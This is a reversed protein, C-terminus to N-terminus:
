VASLIRFDLMRCYQKREAYVEPKDIENDWLLVDVETSGLFAGTFGDLATRLAKALAEVDKARMAWVDFQIRPRYLGDSVGDLIHDTGNDVVMLTLAGSGEPIVVGEDLIMGPYIRTRVIPSGIGTMSRVVAVAAARDEDLGATNSTGLFTKLDALM